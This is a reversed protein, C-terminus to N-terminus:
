KRRTSQHQWQDNREKHRLILVLRQAELECQGVILPVPKSKVVVVESTINGLQLISSVRLNFHENKPIKYFPAHCIPNLFSCFLTSLESWIWSVDSRSVFIELFNWKPMFISLTQLVTQTMKTFTEALAYLFLNINDEPVFVTLVLNSWYVFYITLDVIQKWIPLCFEKNPKQSVEHAPLPIFNM